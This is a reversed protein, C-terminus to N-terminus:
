TKKKEERKRFRSLLSTGYLYSKLTTEKPYLFFNKIERIQQFKFKPPKHCEDDGHPIKNSNPLTELITM